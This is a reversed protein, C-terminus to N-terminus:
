STITILINQELRFILSISTYRNKGVKTSSMSLALKRHNVKIDHENKERRYITCQEPISQLLHETKKRWVQEFQNVELFLAFYFYVEFHLCIRRHSDLLEFNRLPCAGSGGLFSPRGFYYRGTM